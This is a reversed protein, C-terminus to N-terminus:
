AVTRELADLPFKLYRMGNAEPEPLRGGVINVQLAHLILKPMPLTADRERRLKVFAEQSVGAIHFNARKQEGM